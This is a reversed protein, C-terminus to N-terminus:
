RRDAPVAGYLAAAYDAQSTTESTAPFPTTFMRNYVGLKIEDASASSPDDGTPQPPLLGCFANFLCSASCYHADLLIRYLQPDATALEPTNLHTANYLVTVTSNCCECRYIRNGYRHHLTAEILALIDPRSPPVQECAASYLCAPSCLRADYLAGYVIGTGQLADADYERSVPGHCFQCCNDDMMEQVADQAVRKTGYLQAMQVQAHDFVRAATAQHDLATVHMTPDIVLPPPPPQPQVMAVTQQPHQQWLLRAGGGMTPSAFSVATQPTVRVTQFLSSSSVPAYAAVRAASDVINTTAATATINYSSTNTHVDVDM